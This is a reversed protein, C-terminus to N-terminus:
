PQIEHESSDHTHKILAKASPVVHNETSQTPETWGTPSSYPAKGSLLGLKKHLIIIQVYKHSIRAPM